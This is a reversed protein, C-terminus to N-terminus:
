EFKGDWPKWKRGTASAPYDLPPEAGGHVSGTARYPFDPNGASDCNLHYFTLGGTKLTYRANFFRGRMMWKNFLSAFAPEEHSAIGLGDRTRFSPSTFDVQIVRGEKLHITLTHGEKEARYTLSDGSGAAPKGLASLVAARDMGLSIRGLSRGPVILCDDKAAMCPAPPYLLGAALMAAAFVLARLIRNMEAKRERGSHAQQSNIGMICCSM